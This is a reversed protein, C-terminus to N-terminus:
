IKIRGNKTVKASDLVNLHYLTKLLVAESFADKSIFGIAGRSLSQAVLAPETHVTLIVVPIGATQANSKLRECTASGDMAPMEVDLLIVDPMYQQALSVGIRGDPAWFVQLGEGELLEGLALAQTPSDEVILVKKHNEAM